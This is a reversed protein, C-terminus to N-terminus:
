CEQQGYSLILQPDLNCVTSDVLRTEVSISKDNSDSNISNELSIDCLKSNACLEFSLFQNNRSNEM